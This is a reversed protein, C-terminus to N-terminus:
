GVGNKTSSKQQTKIMEMVKQYDKRSYNEKVAKLIFDKMNNLCSVKIGSFFFMASLIHNAKMHKKFVEARDMVKESDYEEIVGDETSPRYICAMLVELNDNITEKDKSFTEVDIWWALNEKYFTEDFKYKIGELEIESLYSTSEDEYLFSYEKMLSGLQDINVRLLTEYEIGTIASICKVIYRKSNDDKEIKFIKKYDVLTMEEFKTPLEYTKGELEIQIM